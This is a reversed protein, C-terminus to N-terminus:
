WRWDGDILGDLSVYCVGFSLCVYKGVVCVFFWDNGVYYSLIFSVSDFSNDLYRLNDEDGLWNRLVNYVYKDWEM